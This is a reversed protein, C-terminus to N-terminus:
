LSSSYKMFLFFFFFVIVQVAEETSLDSAHDNLYEQIWRPLKNRKDARFFRKDAFLMIGYDTKGRMVRGVCQAAHRMADFTLFDNERIQPHTNLTCFPLKQQICKTHKLLAGCHVPPAMSHAFTVSCVLQNCHNKHGPLHVQGCYINVSVASCRCEGIHCRTKM